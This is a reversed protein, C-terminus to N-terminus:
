FYVLITRAGGVFISSIHNQTTSYKSRLYEFLDYTKSYHLHSAIEIVLMGPTITLTKILGQQHARRLEDFMDEKTLSRSHYM